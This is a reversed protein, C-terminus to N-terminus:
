GLVPLEEYLNGISQLRFITAHVLEVDVSELFDLCGFAIPVFSTLIEETTYGHM